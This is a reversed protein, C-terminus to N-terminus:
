RAKLRQVPVVGLVHCASFLSEYRSQVLAGRSRGARYSTQGRATM